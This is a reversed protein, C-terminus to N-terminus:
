YEYNGAFVSKCSQLNMKKPTNDLANALDSRIKKMQYINYEPRAYASVDLNDKLGLYIERMQDHDFVSLDMDSKVENNELWFKAM